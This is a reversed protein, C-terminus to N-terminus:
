YYRQIKVPESNAVVIVSALSALSPPNYIRRVQGSGVHGVQCHFRSYHPLHHSQVRDVLSLEQSITKTLDEM